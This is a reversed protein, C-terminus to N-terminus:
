FPRLFPERGERELRHYKDVALRKRLLSIGVGIKGPFGGGFLNVDVPTRNKAPPLSKVLHDLRTPEYGHARLYGIIDKMRRIGRTSGDEFPHLLLTIHQSGRDMSLDMQKKVANWTKGYTEVGVPIMKMGNESEMLMPDSRCSWFLSTNKLPYVFYEIGASELVQLSKKDMRGIFNAGRINEAMVMMEKIWSKERGRIDEHYKGHIGIEHGAKKLTPIVTSYVKAVINTVFFTSPVNEKELVSLIRPLGYKVGGFQETDFILSFSKQGKSTKVSRKPTFNFSGRGRFFDKWCEATGKKWEDGDLASFSSYGVGAERVINGIPIKSTQENRMFLIFDPRKESVAKLISGRLDEYSKYDNELQNIRWGLANRTEKIKFGKQTVCLVEM